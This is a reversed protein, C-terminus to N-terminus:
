LAQSDPNTPPTNNEEGPEASVVPKPGGGEEKALLDNFSSKQTQSSDLPEIVRVGGAQPSVPKPDDESPEKSEPTEEPAPATPAETPQAPTEPVNPLVVDSGDAPANPEEPAPSESLPNPDSAVQGDSSDAAAPADSQAPQDTVVPTDATPTSSDTAPVAPESPSTTPETPPTSEPIPEPEAVPTTDVAAPDTTAQIAPEPISTPETTAAPQATPETSPAADTAAPAEPGGALVEKVTKVIDELTVQSKVLYKNAGLKEARAKDEAQSLASMMIVKTDKTAPTSKLIDLTDFGSIKPMMVDLIILDPKEKGVLALAEEGDKATVTDYGEAALRAQYIERLSNDDEVLMLKSV